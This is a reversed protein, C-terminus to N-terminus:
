THVGKLVGAAKFPDRGQPLVKGSEGALGCDAPVGSGGRSRPGVQGMLGARTPCEIGRERDRFGLMDLAPSRRGYECKAPEMWAAPLDTRACSDASVRRRAHGRDWLSGSGSAPLAWGGGRAETVQGAETGKEEGLGSRRWRIM